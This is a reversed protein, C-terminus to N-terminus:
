CPYNPHSRDQLVIPRNSARCPPPQRRDAVNNELHKPETLDAGWEFEATIISLNEASTSRLRVLGPVTAIVDELPDTVDAEVTAPDAGPYITIM